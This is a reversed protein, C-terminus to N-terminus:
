IGDSLSFTKIDGGFLFVDLESKGSVTFRRNVSILILVFYKKVIYRKYFLM